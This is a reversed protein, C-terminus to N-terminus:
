WLDKKVRKYSMNNVTVVSDPVRSQVAKKIDASTAGSARVYSVTGDFKYKKGVKSIASFKISSSKQKISRQAEKAIEKSAYPGFKLKLNIKYKDM